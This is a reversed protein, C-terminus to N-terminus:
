LFILFMEGKVTNKWLLPPNRVPGPNERPSVTHKCSFSSIQVEAKALGGKCDKNTLLLREKEAFGEAALARLCADYAARTGNQAVYVRNTRNETRLSYGEFVSEPIM